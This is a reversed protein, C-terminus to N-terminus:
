WGKQGFLMVPVTMTMIRVDEIFSQRRLYELDYQVKRRVDDVCADYCQNIQAWGTIGPKVRQRLQYQPIDKRLDAFLTPREPRPGVINMDGRLVNILQPLEDLRTRRLVRGVLTVRPDAKSAWVARGDAEANVYMSRFKHMTFPRGGLDYVRREDASTRGGRRDVGVRVQSYFIPGRSTLRVALAILLFLPSLAILAVLAIAVNMARCLGEHRERPRIDTTATECTESLPEQVPPLDALPFTLLELAHEVVRLDRARHDSPRRRAPTRATAAVDITTRTATM